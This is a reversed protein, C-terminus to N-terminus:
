LAGLDVPRGYLKVGCEDCVLVIEERATTKLQMGALSSRGFPDAVLAKSTSFGSTAACAPCEWNVHPINGALFERVDESPIVPGTM